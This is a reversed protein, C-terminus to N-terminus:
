DGMNIYLQQAYYIAVLAPILDGLWPVLGPLDFVFLLTVELASIGLYLAAAFRYNNTLFGTILCGWVDSLVVGVLWGIRGVLLARLLRPAVYLPGILLLFVAARVKWRGGQALARSL